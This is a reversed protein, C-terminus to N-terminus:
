FKYNPKQAKTKARKSKDKRKQKRSMEYADKSIGDERHMATHVNLKERKPLLEVDRIQM